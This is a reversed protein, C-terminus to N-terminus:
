NSVATSLRAGRAHASASPTQVITPRPANAVHLVQRVGRALLFMAIGSLVLSASEPMQSLQGVIGASVSIPLSVMSMVVIVYSVLKV